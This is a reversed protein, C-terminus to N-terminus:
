HSKGKALATPTSLLGKRNVGTRGRSRSWSWSWRSARSARRTDLGAFERAPVSSLWRPPSLRYAAAGWYKSLQESKPRRHHGLPPFEEEAVFSSASKPAVIPFDFFRTPWALGWKSPSPSLRFSDHSRSCVDSKKARTSGSALRSRPSVRKPPWARSRFPACLWLWLWLWVCKTAAERPTAEYNDGLRGRITAKGVSKGAGISFAGRGAAHIADNALV